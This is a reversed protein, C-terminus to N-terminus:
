RGSALSFGNPATKPAPRNCHYMDMYLVVNQGDCKISYADVVHHDVDGPRLPEGMAQRLLRDAQASTIDRPIPFREGVSGSRSFTPRQGNSCVLASLYDREGQPMCVEIASEKSEGLPATAGHTRAAEKEQISACGSQLVWMLLVCAHVCHLRRRM